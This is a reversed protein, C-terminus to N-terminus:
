HGCSVKKKMLYFAEDRLNKVCQRPQFGSKLRKQTLLLTCDNEM